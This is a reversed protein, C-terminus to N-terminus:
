RRPWGDLGVAPRLVGGSERATKARHCPSCLSQLNSESDDGGAAKNVIHDVDVALTVKGAKTCACCLGNDRALIHKRLKQWAWGYGRESTSKTSTAAWGGGTSEKAGLTKVRPPLTKLRGRTM